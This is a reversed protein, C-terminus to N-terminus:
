GGNREKKWVGRKQGSRKSLIAGTFYRIFVFILEYPLTIEENKSSKFVFNCLKKYFFEYAVGPQCKVQFLLLRLYSFSEFYYCDLYLAEHTFFMVAVFDM